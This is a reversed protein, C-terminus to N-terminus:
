DQFNAYFSREIFYTKNNKKVIGNDNMILGILIANLVRTPMSCYLCCNVMDGALSHTDKTSRSGGGM